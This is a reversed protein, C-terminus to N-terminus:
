NSSERRDARRARMEAREEDTTTNQMRRQHNEGEDSTFPGTVLDYAGTVAGEGAGVVSGVVDKGGNWVSAVVDEGAGVVTNVGDKTGEWVPQTVSCSCLFVAFLLLYLNKM